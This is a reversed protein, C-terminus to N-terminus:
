GEERQGIPIAEFPSRQRSLWTMAAPVVHMVLVYSAGAYIFGIVADIFYHMGLYLISFIVSGLYLLALYAPAGFQRRLFLFFLMPFAAHESPIEAVPDYHLNLFSFGMWTLSVYGHYPSFWHGIFVQFLNRVGPLYVHGGAAVKYIGNIHVLPKAAMHPPVSPYLVYTVFGGLTLVVFAITFKRFLQRNTMWLLFGCLLPVLFHSLYITTAFIDWPQLTGPHYLHRQLWVAPVTGGFMFRDAQILEQLHWPFGFRTALTSTFQWAILVVVFASWDKIFQRGRGSFTAASFLIIALWEITLRLNFYLFGASIALIYLTLATLRARPSTLIKIM